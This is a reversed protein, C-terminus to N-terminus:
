PSPASESPSALSSESSSSSLKASNYASFLRTASARSYICLCRVFRMLIQLLRSPLSMGCRTRWLFGLFGGFADIGPMAAVAASLFLVSPLLSTNGFMWVLDNLFNTSTGSLISKAAPEQLVQTAALGTPGEQVSHVPEDDFDLLNEAVQGAAVTQLEM